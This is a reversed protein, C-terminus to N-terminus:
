FSLTGRLTMPVTWFDHDRPDHLRNYAFKVALVVGFPGINVGGGGEAFYREGDGREGRIRGVGGIVFAQSGLGWGASRDSVVVGAGLDVSRGDTLEYLETGTPRQITLRIIPLQEYALRVALSAGNGAGVPYVTLGVGYNRRRFEDVAVTTDGDASRYDIGPERVGGTEKGVLQEVPKDGFHLPLTHMGDLSLSIWQRRPEDQRFQATATSPLWFVCALCALALLSRNSQIHM